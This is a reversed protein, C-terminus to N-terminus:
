KKSVAGFCGLSVRFLGVRSGDEEEGSLLGGVGDVAVGEVPV